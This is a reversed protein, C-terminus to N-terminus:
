KYIESEVLDLFDQYILKELKKGNVFFTPTGRVGLTAADQRDLALMDSIDITDADQKLKEVDLGEINPLFNWLLQPNPNNKAAWAPQYKYVLDTVEKYKNQKRSAEMIKIVYESNRHNALYRIVLHIDEYYEKYINYIAPHFTRCAPCEPDTFETIIINKKNDGMRVSHDRVFPAGKSSTKALTEVNSSESKKFGIIAGIFVLALVAVSIFVIKKNQM